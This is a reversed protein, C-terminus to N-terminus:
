PLLPVTATRTLAITGYNFMAPPLFNFSAQAQITMYNIGSSSSTSTTFTVSNQNIVYLNDQAEEIVQQSTASTNLMAYRGAGEVAYEMSSILWYVRGMDIIGFIMMFFIPAILAFEVAAVGSESKKILHLIKM